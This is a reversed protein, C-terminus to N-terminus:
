LQQWMSVSADRKFANIHNEIAWANGARQIWKQLWYQILILSWLKLKDIQFFVSKIIFKQKIRNHVNNEREENNKIMEKAKSKLM